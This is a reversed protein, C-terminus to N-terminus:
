IQTFKAQNLQFAPIQSEKLSPFYPIVEHKNKRLKQNNDNNLNM